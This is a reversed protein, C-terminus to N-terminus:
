VDTCLAAASRRARLKEWVPLIAVGAVLMLLGRWQLWLIPSRYDHGGTRLLILGDLLIALAFLKLLLGTGRGLLLFWLVAILVLERGLPFAAVGYAMARPLEALAGLQLKPGGTEAVVAKQKGPGMTEGKDTKVWVHAFDTVIQVEFGLNRLLSAAVVARGDCDERGMEIAETVTPMYDATGWTNWDWDYPIKEYVFREVRKLVEPADLDDTLKTQLEEVLPALAAADPEILANPDRWHEIHRLLVGPYPFCVALLALGFVAWKVPLRLYWRWDNWVLLKQM